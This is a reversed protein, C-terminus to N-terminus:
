DELRARLGTEVDPWEDKLVSFWVTNRWEGTWCMLHHRFTGEYQGGLKRIANQSHQNRHHTKLEVREAGCEFARGMLLHKCAPNIRTGRVEPAYWTWGIELRQHAPVICLFATHGVAAGDSRRRVLHSIQEGKGTATLMLDFWSDFHPGDGRVLTLDWLGEAEALPRLAERHSEDLPELRVVANELVVPEIKM